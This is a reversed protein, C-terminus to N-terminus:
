TSTRCRCGKPWPSRFTSPGTLAGRADLRLRLVQTLPGDGPWKWDGAVQSLPEFPPPLGVTGEKVWVHPGVMQRAGPMVVERFTGALPPMTYTLMIGALQVNRLEIRKPQPGSVDVTGTIAGSPSVHLHLVLKQSPTVVYEWDGALSHPSVAAQGAAAATVGCSFAVILPILTKM